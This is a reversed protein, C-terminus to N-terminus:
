RYPVTSERRNTKKRFEKSTPQVEHHISDKGCLFLLLFVKRVESRLLNLFMLRTHKINCHVSLTKYKVVVLLISLYHHITYYLYTNTPLSFIEKTAHSLILEKVKKKKSHSIVTCLPSQLGKITAQEPTPQIKM